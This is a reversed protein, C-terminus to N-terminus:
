LIGVVFCSCWCDLYTLRHCLYMSVVFYLHPFYRTKYTVKDCIMEKREMEEREQYLRDMLKQNENKMEKLDATLIEIM